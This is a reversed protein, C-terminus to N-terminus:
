RLYMNYRKEDKITTSEGHGSYVVTDDPLPLLKTKISSILQEFNGGPLDTRGISNKFLADGVFVCKSTPSYFATSGPTHGPVHLAQLEESGFKFSMGEEINFGIRPASDNIRIGFRAASANYASLLYADEKNAGMATGFTQTAFSVGFCHDFHLHTNLIYKIQLGHDMVYERLEEKEEEYFAGCDIIVAEKSPEDVLLYTCESVPNFTFIKIFM